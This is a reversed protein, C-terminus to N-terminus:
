ICVSWSDIKIFDLAVSYTGAPVMFTKKIKSETGKVAYGGCLQHDGCTSIKGCNWGEFDNLNDFKNSKIERFRYIIASQDETTSTSGLHIESTSIGNSYTRAHSLDIRYKIKAADVGKTTTSTRSPTTVATPVLEVPFVTKFRQSVLKSLNMEVRIHVHMDNGAKKLKSIVVNDIGFSEDSADGDLKAWVQVTLPATAAESGTSLTVYCDTVRFM